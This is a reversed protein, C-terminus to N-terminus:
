YGFMVLYKTLKVFRDYLKPLASMKFESILSDEEIHKDVETFIYDIVRSFECLPNLCVIGLLPYNSILFWYIDSQANLINRLFFRKFWWNFWFFNLKYILIFKIIDDLLKERKRGEFIHFVWCTSSLILQPRFLM